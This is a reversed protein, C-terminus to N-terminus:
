SSAPGSAARPPVGFQLTCSRRGMSRPDEVVAQGGSETRVEYGQGAALAHLQDLTTGAPLGACFRDMERNAEVFPWFAYLNVLLLLVGIAAYIWHRRKM